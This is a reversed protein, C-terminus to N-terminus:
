VAPGLVIREFFVKGLEETDVRSHCFSDFINAFYRVFNHLTHFISGNVNIKSM